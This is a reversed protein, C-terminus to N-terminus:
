HKCFKSRIQWLPTPLVMASWSRGSEQIKLSRHSKSYIIMETQNTLSRHKCLKLRIQWLITPLVRSWQGAWRIGVGEATTLSEDDAWRAKAENAPLNPCKPPFITATLVWLLDILWTARIIRTSFCWFSRVGEATMLSEDDAWRGEWSQNPKMPPCTRINLHSIQRLWFECCYSYWTMSSNLSSLNKLM